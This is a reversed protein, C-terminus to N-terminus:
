RAEPVSSASEPALEPPAPPQVLVDAVDGGNQLIASYDRHITFTREDRRDLRLGVRLEAMLADEADMLYGGLRKGLARVRYPVHLERLTDSVAPTLTFPEGPATALLGWSDGLGQETFLVVLDLAPRWLREPAVGRQTLLTSLSVRPEVTVDFHGEADLAIRPAFGLAAILRVTVPVKTKSAGPRTCDPPLLSVELTDAPRSTAATALEPTLVTLAGALTSGVAVPRDLQQSRLDLSVDQLSDLQFASPLSRHCPLAPRVDLLPPGQIEPGASADEAAEDATRRQSATGVHSLLPTRTSIGLSLADLEAHLQGLVIACLQGREAPHCPSMPPSAALGQPTSVMLAAEWEEGAASSCGVVFSVGATLMARIGPRRLVSRSLAGGQHCQHNNPM